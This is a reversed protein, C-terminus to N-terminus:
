QYKINQCKVGGLKNVYVFYRGEPYIYPESHNVVIRTKYGDNKFNLKIKLADLSNIGYENSVLKYEEGAFRRVSKALKM